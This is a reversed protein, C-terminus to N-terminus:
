VPENLTEDQKMLFIMAEDLTDFRRFQTRALQTLISALFDRMQNPQDVFVLWGFRPHNLSSLAKRLKIINNPNQTIGRRDIILHVGNSKLAEAMMENARVLDEFVVTGYGVVLLVRDQIYWSVELPM